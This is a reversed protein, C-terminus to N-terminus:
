IIKLCRKFEFRIRRIVRGIFPLKPFIRNYYAIMQERAIPSEAIVEPFKWNTETSIETKWFDSNEVVHTGSGDAGAYEILSIGPFLTLRGQSFMSAHWYIAWSHFGKKEEARLVSYHSHSEDLNFQRILGLENIRDMLESPNWVISNWRDKWTAWGLCDAGKLFFPDQIPQDFGFCYGHISAVKPETLYKDLGMNMYKLFSNTVILDDELVIIKDSKSLVETVGTKLSIGLGLNKERLVLKKAKMGSFGKAVERTEQVLKLDSNDRPGDVYIYVESEAFEKNQSLSKLLGALHSPRNFAFIIIPALQTTV